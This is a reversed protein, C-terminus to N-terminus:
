AGVLEINPSEMEGGAHWERVDCGPFSRTEGALLEELGVKLVDAMHQPLRIVAFRERSLAVALREAATVFSTSAIGSLPHLHDLPIRPAVPAM